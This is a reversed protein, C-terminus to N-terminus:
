WHPSKEVWKSGTGIELCSTPFYQMVTYFIDVCLQLESHCSLKDTGLQSALLFILALVPTQLTRCLMVFTCLSRLLFSSSSLFPTILLARDKPTLLVLLFQPELLARRGLVSQISSCGILLLSLEQQQKNWLCSVVVPEQSLTIASLPRPSGESLFSPCSQWAPVMRGGGGAAEPHIGGHGTSPHLLHSTPAHDWRPHSRFPNSLTKPCPHSTIGTLFPLWFSHLPSLSLSWHLNTHNVQAGGGPSRQHMLHRDCGWLAFLLCSGDYERYFTHRICECCFMYWTEWSIMLLSPNWHQSVRSFPLPLTFLPQVQYIASNKMGTIYCSSM